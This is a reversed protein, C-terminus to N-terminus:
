STNASRASHSHLPMPRPPCPLAVAAAVAASVSFCSGEPRLHRVLILALIPFEATVLEM